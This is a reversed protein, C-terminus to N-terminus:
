TSGKRRRFHEELRKAYRDNRPGPAHANLWLGESLPVAVKFPEGDEHLKETHILYRTMRGLKFPCDGPGLLGEDILADAVRKLNAYGFEGGTGTAPRRRRRSAGAPDPPRGTTKVRQSEGGGRFAWWNNLYRHLARRREQRSGFDLRYVRSRASPGRAFSKYDDWPVIWFNNPEDLHYLAIILNVPHQPTKVDFLMRQGKGRTKVQVNWHRDDSLVVLDVGSVDVLPMYADFGQRLLEVM